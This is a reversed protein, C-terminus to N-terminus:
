TGPNLSVRLVSFCKLETGSMVSDASGSSVSCQQAGQSPRPRLEVFVGEAGVHSPWSLLGNLYYSALRGSYFQISNHKGLMECCM